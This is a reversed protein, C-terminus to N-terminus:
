EDVEEAEPDELIAQVDEGIEWPCICWVLCSGLTKMKMM